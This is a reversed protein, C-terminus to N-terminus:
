PPPDVYSPKSTVLDPSLRTPNIPNGETPLDVRRVFNVSVLDNTAAYSNVV